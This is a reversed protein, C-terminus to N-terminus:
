LCTIYTYYFLLDLSVNVREEDEDDRSCSLSIEYICVIYMHTDNDLVRRIHWTMKVFFM